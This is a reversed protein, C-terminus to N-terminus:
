ECIAGGGMKASCGAPHPVKLMDQGSRELNEIQEATLCVKSALNSGTLVEDRCYVREGRYLAPQYGRKRMARDVEAQSVAAGSTSSTPVGSAAVTGSAPVGGPTPSVRPPSSSSCAANIAIALAALSISLVGKM